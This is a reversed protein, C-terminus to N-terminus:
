ITVRMVSAACTTTRITSVTQYSKVTRSQSAAGQPKILTSNKVVFFVIM